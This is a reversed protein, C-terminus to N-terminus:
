LFQHLLRSKRKSTPGLTSTTPIHWRKMVSQCACECFGMHWTATYGSHRLFTSERRISTITGGSPAFCQISLTPLHGAWPELGGEHGTFVVNAYCELFLNVSYCSTLRIVMGVLINQFFKVHSMFPELLAKGGHRDSHIARARINAESWLPLLTISWCEDSFVWTM